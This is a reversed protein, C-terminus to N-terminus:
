GALIALKQVSMSLFAGRLWGFTLAGAFDEHHSSKAAAKVKPHFPQKPLM